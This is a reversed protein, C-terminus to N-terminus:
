GKERKGTESEAGQQRDSERGRGGEREKKRDTDHKGGEREGKRVAKEEIVKDSERERNRDKGKEYVATLLLDTFM